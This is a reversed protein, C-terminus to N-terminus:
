CVHSGSDGEVPAQPSGANSGFINGKISRDVTEPGLGELMRNTLKICDGAGMVVVTDGPSAEDQLLEFADEFSACYIAASHTLARFLEWGDMGDAPVERAAFTPLIVVRDAYEFSKAFDKILAATRSYTHPQFVAWLPSEGRQGRAMALTYRVASPHHAYDDILHIGGPSGRYEYRRKIPQFGALSNVAEEPIAGVQCAALLAALANLQNFVGATPLRGEFRVSRNQSVIDFTSAPASDPDKPLLIWDREPALGFSVYARSPSKQSNQWSRLFVNDGNYIVFGLPHVQELFAKFADHFDGPSPYCDPHDWEVSTVVAGLPALGLFMGDYEDAEIVFLKEKGAQGAKLRHSSAGVVYGPERGSAKLIQVLMSTTTSKGHTGAVAVVEREALLAPLFRARTVLPLGLSAAQRWEPNAEPVASSHLVVHPRHTEALGQLHEATQGINVPIHRKQLEMTAATPHLESGSVQIGMEQLVMALPALGAGGIGMIYVRLSPDVARLRKDWAPTLPQDLTSLVM